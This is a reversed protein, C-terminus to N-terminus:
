RSIQRHIILNLKLGKLEVSKRITTFILRGFREAGYQDLGGNEIKQCEPVRASLVSRWLARIDFFKFPHTLDTRGHVRQLTGNSVM